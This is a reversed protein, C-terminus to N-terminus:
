LAYLRRVRFIDGAPGRLQLPGPKDTSTNDGCAANLTTLYKSAYYKTYRLILTSHNNFGLTLCVTDLLSLIKPILAM